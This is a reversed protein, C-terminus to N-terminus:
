GQPGNPARRRPVYQVTNYGGGLSLYLKKLLRQSLKGSFVTSESRQNAFYSTNVTRSANVTLMTSEFPQYGASAGLIPNILNAAGTNLFQRDEVGGHVQLSTQEDRAM